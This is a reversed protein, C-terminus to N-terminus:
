IHIKHESPFQKFNNTHPKYIGKQCFMTDDVYRKWFILKELKPVLNSELEVMFIGALMPGLPSGM